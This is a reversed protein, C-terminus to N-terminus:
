YQFYLFPTYGNSLIATYSLAFLALLLVYKVGVWLPREMARGYLARVKERSCLFIGLVSVLLLTVTKATLFYRWTFNLDGIDLGLMNKLYLFFTSVNALRFCLWGIFVVLTTYAWGVAPFWRRRQLRKFRPTREIVCM